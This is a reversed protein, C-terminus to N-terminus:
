SPSCTTRPSPRAARHHVQEYTRGHQDPFPAAKKLAGEITDGRAFVEKVNKADVQAKFETYSVAEKRGALQDQMTAILFILLYAVGFWTLLRKWPLRQPKGQVDKGGLM